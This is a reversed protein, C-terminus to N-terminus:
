INRNLIEQWHESEFFERVTRLAQAAERLRRDSVGMDAHSMLKIEHADMAEVAKMGRATLQMLPSRKHAPNHAPEVLRQEALRNIIGQVHQRSVMRSRAMQPVSQPGHKKLGRLISRLGGSMEGQHHVEDAVVNLRRFLKVTEDILGNFPSDMTSNDNKEHKQAMLGGNM